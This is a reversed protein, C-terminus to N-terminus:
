YVYNDKKRYFMLTDILAPYYEPGMAQVFRVFESRDSSSGDFVIQFDSKLISSAPAGTLLQLKQGGKGYFRSGAPAYRAGWYRHSPGAAFSDADPQTELITKFWDYISFDGETGPSLLAKARLVESYSWQFDEWRQLLLDIAEVEASGISNELIQPGINWVGGLIAALESLNDALAIGDPAGRDILDLLKRFSEGKFLFFHRINHPSEQEFHDNFILLGVDAVASDCIVYFRRGLLIKLDLHTADRGRLGEILTFRGPFRTTGILRAKDAVTRAVSSLLSGEYAAAHRSAATFEGFSSAINLLRNFVRQATRELPLNRLSLFRKAVMDSLLEFPALAKTPQFMKDLSSRSVVKVVPPKPAELGERLVAQPDGSLAARELFTMPLRRAHIRSIAEVLNMDFKPMCLQGMYFAVFHATAVAREPSDHFLKSLGALMRRSSKKTDPLQALDIIEIVASFGYNGIDQQRKLLAYYQDYNFNLCTPRPPSTVDVEIFEGFRARSEIAAILPHEFHIMPDFNNGRRRVYSEVDKQTHEMPTPPVGTKDLEAYIRHFREFATRYRETVQVLYEPLSLDTRNSALIWPLLDYFFFDVNGNNSVVEKCMLMVATLSCSVDGYTSLEKIAAWIFRTAVIALVERKDPWFSKISDVALIASVLQHLDRDPNWSTYKGILFPLCQGLVSQAVALQGNLGEVLATLKPIDREPRFSPGIAEFVKRLGTLTEQPDGIYERGLTEMLRRFPNAVKALGTKRDNSDAYCACLVPGLEFLAPLLDMVEHEKTLAPKAIRAFIRLHLAPSFDNGLGRILKGLGQGVGELQLTSPFFTTTSTFRVLEILDKRADFTPWAEIIGQWGRIDSIRLLRQLQWLLDSDRQAIRFVGQQVEKLVQKISESTSGRAMLIAPVLTSLAQGGNLELRNFARFFSAVAPGIIKIDLPKTLTKELSVFYISLLAPNPTNPIQVLVFRIVERISQRIKFACNRDQTNGESRSSQSTM